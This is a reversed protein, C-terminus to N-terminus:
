ARSMPDQQNKNKKKVGPGAAKCGTWCSVDDDSSAETIGLWDTLDDTADGATAARQNAKEKARTLRAGYKVNLLGVLDTVHSELKQMKQVNPHLYRIYLEMIMIFIGGLIVLALFTYMGLYSMLEQATGSYCMYAWSGNLVLVWVLIAAITYWHVQMTWRSANVCLCCVVGDGHKETGIVNRMCYDFGAFLLWLAIIGGQLYAPVEICTTTDILEDSLRGQSAFLKLDHDLPALDKLVANSVPDGQMRLRNANENLEDLEKRLSARTVRLRTAQKVATVSRSDEGPTKHIFDHVKFSSHRTAADDDSIREVAAQQLGMREEQPHPQPDAIRVVSYVPPLDDEPMQRSFAVQSLLPQSRRHIPEHVIAPQM